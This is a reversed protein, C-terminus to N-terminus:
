SMKGSQCTLIYFNVFCVSQDDQDILKNHGILMEM